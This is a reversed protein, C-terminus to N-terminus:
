LSEEQMRWRTPMMRNMPGLEDNASALQTIIWLDAENNVVVNQFSCMAATSGRECPLSRARAKTRGAGIFPESLWHQANRFDDASDVSKLGERSM